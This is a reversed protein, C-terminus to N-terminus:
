ILLESRKPGQLQQQMQARPKGNYRPWKNEFYLLCVMIRVNPDSMLHIWLTSVSSEYDVETVVIAHLILDYTDQEDTSGTVDQKWILVLDYGSRGGFCLSIAM